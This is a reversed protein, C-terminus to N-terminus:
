DNYLVSVYHYQLFNEVEPAEKLEDPVNLEPPLEKHPWKLITYCFDLAFQFILRLRSLLQEFEISTM